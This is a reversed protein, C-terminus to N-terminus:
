LNINFHEEDNFTLVDNLLLCFIIMLEFLEVSLLIINVLENFKGYKFIISHQPNRQSCYLKVLLLKDAKLAFM